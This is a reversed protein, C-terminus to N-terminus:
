KSVSPPQCVATPRGGNAQLVRSGDPAQQGILDLIQSHRSTKPSIIIRTKYHVLDSVLEGRTSLTTGNGRIAGHICRDTGLAFRAHVTGLAASSTSRLAASQWVLTGTAATIRDKEISLIPIRAIVRGQARVMLRTKPDQLISAQFDASVNKFNIHNFGQEMIANANIEGALRLTANLEGFLMRSPHITWELSGLSRSGWRVQMARGRWLNGRIDDVEVPLHDPWFMRVALSAPFEVVFTGVFIAFWLLPWFVRKM